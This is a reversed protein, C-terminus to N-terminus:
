AHQPEEDDAARVAAVFSRIRDHDKIGPSVEVGSSVDVAFPRLRRVAEGVNAGTLGGALILAAWDPVSRAADWDFTRGTGGAVGPVFADLLVAAVTGKYREIEATDFGGGVRFAKIVPAPAAACAEPSENGHFQVASLGLRAVADAVFAPDADVFVGIRGVLPPVGALAAGGQQLTVQRPSPALVVGLADAGAAVAASADKARTIGCVKIRTRSM